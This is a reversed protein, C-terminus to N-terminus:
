QTNCDRFSKHQIISDSIITRNIEYFKNKPLQYTYIKNTFAMNIRETDFDILITNQRPPDTIICTPWCSIAVNAFCQQLYANANQQAVFDSAHSHFFVFNIKKGRDSQRLEKLTELTTSLVTKSKHDYLMSVPALFTEPWM